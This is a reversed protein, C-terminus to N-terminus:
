IKGFAFGSIRDSLKVVTRPSDLRARSAASVAVQLSSRYDSGGYSGKTLNSNGSSVASQGRQTSETQGKPALWAWM